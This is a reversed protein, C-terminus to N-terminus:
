QNEDGLKLEVLKIQSVLIYQNVRRTACYYLCLRALTLNRTLVLLASPFQAPSCTAINFKHKPVLRGSKHGYSQARVSTIVLNHQQTTM